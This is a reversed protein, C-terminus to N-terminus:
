VRKYFIKLLFLDTFNKLNWVKKDIVWSIGAEMPNIEETIENGYLCLGAELRLSDRAGLGILKLKKDKLLISIIQSLKEKEGIIEFGDEGTYGTRSILFKSKKFNEM